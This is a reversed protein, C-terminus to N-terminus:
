LKGLMKYGCISVEMLEFMQFLQIATFIILKVSFQLVCTYSLHAIVAIM